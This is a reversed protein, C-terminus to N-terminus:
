DQRRPLRVAAGLEEQLVADDVAGLAGAADM